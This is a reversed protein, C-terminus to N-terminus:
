SNKFYNQILNFANFNKFDHILDSVVQFTNCKSCKTLTQEEAEKEMAVVHYSPLREWYSLSYHSSESKETGKMILLIM